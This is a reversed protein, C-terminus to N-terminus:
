RFNKVLMINSDELEIEAYLISKGDASVALGIGPQKHSTLITTTKGTAFDFFDLEGGNEHHKLFYVGNRALAWNYWEHEGAQDLVRKEEGGSLPVKWIGPAEWKSYYLFNGDASEAAFVGGNKTIQVPPGGKLPVKWLQFPEGGRDSYFYIWKGDRSWSPGGNDAGPLTPLLRPMGGGVELLYIESREKPRFEFAVYHDDPSWRPAGATGQLSTLQGCNSGDSDCSWIEAYGSVSEFVFSKGDSSFNPRWNRGKKLNLVAPPGQSHKEDKLNLRLINEKIFSQMYVLQNGRPSISPCSAMVGVGAVSRPTGGSASVRWLSDLGGRASSFVIDRGDPTWTPSGRIWTKDFTLRTPVGGAAPVVYLDEVAGALIGRVFAVTSGDPSFAPSYDIEQGSPSTLQRTTSDILSLLSIWTGNKNAQGGSFALVNGDPSWDLGRAWPNFSGVYLRHESGGFAPVVRIAMGNGNEFYRYFAVRRGDPSWTPSTDNCDSTLRLSKEGGVMTTYIGCNETGRLVFAVQNGDPSFAPEIQGGPLAALPVVEIPPLSAARNKSSRWIGIGSLLTLLTTSAVLWNRKTTLRKFWGKSAVPPVAQSIPKAVSGIFRYGRRPLTEAFRPNDAEDGLALRIKTIATNLAHDFDVFTDEPWVQQRLEERTVLGGSNKLLIACVQFPQGQLPVRLGNKRLEGTQLDAEFLGFRVIQASHDGNDM